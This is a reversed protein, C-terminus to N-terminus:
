HMQYRFGLLFQRGPAPYGERYSYAADLLNSVSAELTLVSLVTFAAQIDLKFFAETGYIGSSTSTRPSNYMGDLRLVLKSFLTYNVHGHVKHKPVDIFHLDPNSLNKRDTLTYQLATKLASVPRWVLDAEWGYFRANGTNQSQYIASNDPDVGYVEQIANNLYSYFVTTKLQFLSGPICAYGLDFNWSSESFLDPNPISKGLRYSYRDRMTPFRNKRSLNANLYHLQGLQYQGGALLNFAKDSHEPFAYVSDSQADYNDAQLNNKLHMSVGATLLLRKSLRIQDEIAMSFTMDRFHRLAEMGPHINHERHHDYIAHVATKVLHKEIPTLSLILAGGLTEDDYISTFSSRKEQSLLTSDDYSRLDSFYDDYYLRTQLYSDGSFFTKSNFHVGQKKIDPFQWYRVRQAPDDGIYVPVGKSGDQFHYSFVYSDTQNPTYGFKVSSNLDRTESNFQLKGQDAGQSGKGALIFPKSEGFAIGAQFYYREKRSGVNLESQLGGFGRRDLTIASAADMELKALPKRSVLNIAGGLANPGLLLSAEGRSVSIRSLDSVLFRGLDVYGDYSVYVPVGDMYVPVQRLDFGRVNVMADNKPGLHVFNIGPLSILASSVDKKPSHAMADRSLILSLPHSKEGLVRVEGLEFVISQTDAVVGPDQAYLDPISIALIVLTNRIISKM